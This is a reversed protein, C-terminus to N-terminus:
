EPISSTEISEDAQPEVSEGLMSSSEESLAPSSSAPPIEYDHPPIKIEQGVQLVADQAIDNYSAIKEVTIGYQVAIDWLSDEAQVIHVDKRDTSNQQPEDMEPARQAEAKQGITCDAKIDATGSYSGWVATFTYSATGSPIFKFSLTNGPLLQESYLPKEGGELKCYGGSPATGGATLTITYETNASLYYDGERKELPRNNGDEVLVTIDYNATEINQPQTQVSATFWAWTTGVLCVMCLLIGLFSPVLLRRINEDTPKAHKPVYFVSKLWHKM